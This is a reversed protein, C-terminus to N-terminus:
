LPTCYFGNAYLITKIILVKDIPMTSGVDVKILCRRQKFFAAKRVQSIKVVVHLKSAPSAYAYANRLSRRTFVFLIPQVIKGWSGECANVSIGM